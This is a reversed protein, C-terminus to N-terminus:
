LTLFGQIFASPFMFKKTGEKFKVTMRTSVLKTITGKGFSEHTVITGVQVNSYDPQEVPPKSDSTTGANALAVQQIQQIPSPVGSNSM